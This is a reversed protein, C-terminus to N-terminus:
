CHLSLVQHTPQKGVEDVLCKGNLCLRGDFMECLVSVKGERQNLNTQGPAPTSFTWFIGGGVLCLGIIVLMCVLIRGTSCKNTHSGNPQPRKKKLLLEPELTARDKPTPGLLSLSFRLLQLM